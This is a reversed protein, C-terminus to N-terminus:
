KELGRRKLEVSVFDSSIIHDEGKFLRDFIHRNLKWNECFASPAKIHVSTGVDFMRSIANLQKQNECCGSKMYLCNYCMPKISAKKKELEAFACTCGPDETWSKGNGGRHHGLWDMGDDRIHEITREKGCFVCTVKSETSTIM